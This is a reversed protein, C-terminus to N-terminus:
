KGSDNERVKFNWKTSFTAELSNLPAKYVWFHIKVIKNKVHGHRCGCNVTTKTTPTNLWCKYSARAREQILGCTVMKRTLGYVAPVTYPRSRRWFFFFLLLM